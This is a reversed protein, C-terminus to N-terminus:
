NFCRDKLIFNEHNDPIHASNLTPEHTSLRYSIKLDLRWVGCPSSFLSFWADYSIYQTYLQFLLCSFIIVLDEFNRSVRKTVMLM